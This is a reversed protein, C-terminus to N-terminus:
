FRVLLEENLARENKAKYIAVKSDYTVAICRKYRILDVCLNYLLPNLVCFCSGGGGGIEQYDQPLTGEMKWDVKQDLTVGGFLFLQNCVTQIKLCSLWSAMKNPFTALLCLHFTAQRRREKTGLVHCRAMQISITVLNRQAAYKSLVQPYEILANSPRHMAQSLLQPM